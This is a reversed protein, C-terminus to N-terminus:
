DPPAPGEPSRDLLHEGWIETDPHLSKWAFWYASRVVVDDPAEFVFTGAPGDYAIRLRRGAFEDVIRGGALTLISGLYARARGDHEVGLVVEKPHFRADSARVDLPVAESTWYAEYPSRRYDIRRRDPLALVRTDPHRSVWRVMAEVRLPIAELRDGARPGSIARGTVSSWLSETRRDYLLFGDRDLLGSVGFGDPGLDAPAKWAGALDTIPDYTVVVAQEGFRDNVVQHWEMLHVPYARATKGVAVGIVPTDPRVWRAEDAEAFSPADVSRIGDRPPGGEVVEGRPVRLDDLAFGNPAADPESPGNGEATGTEADGAEAAATAGAAVAGAVGVSLMGAFALACALTRL